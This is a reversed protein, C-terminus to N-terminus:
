PRWSRVVHGWAAATGVLIAFSVNRVVQGRDVRELNTSLMSILDDTKM